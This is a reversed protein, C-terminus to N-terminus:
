WSFPYFEGAGGGRRGGGGGCIYFHLNYVVNKCQDRLQLIGFKRSLFRRFTARSEFGFHPDM